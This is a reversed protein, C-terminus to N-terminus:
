SGIRDVWGGRRRDGACEKRSAHSFIPRSSPPHRHWSQTRVLRHWSSDRQSTLRRPFGTCPRFQPCAPSDREDSAASRRGRPDYLGERVRQRTWRGPESCQVAEAIRRFSLGARRDSGATQRRAPSRPEDVPSRRARGSACPCPAAEIRECEPSSHPHHRNQRLANLTPSALPRHDRVGAWDAAWQRTGGLPQSTTNSGDKFHAAPFAPRDRVAAEAVGLELIQWSLEVAVVRCRSLPSPGASVSYRAITSVATSAIM